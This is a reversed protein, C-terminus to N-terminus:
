NSTGAILATAGDIQSLPKMDEHLLYLEIGASRFAEIRKPLQQVNRTLRSIDRIVAVHINHAKCDALLHEMEFPMDEATGSAFDFYVGYLEWEEREAVAAKLDAIQKDMEAKDPAALRAYIAAKIM